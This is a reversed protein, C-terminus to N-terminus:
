DSDPPGCDMDDMQDLMNCDGEADVKQKMAKKMAKTVRAKSKLNDKMENVLIQIEVCNNVITQM